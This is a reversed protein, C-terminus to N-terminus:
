TCVKNIVAATHRSELGMMADVIILIGASKSEGNYLLYLALSYIFIFRPYNKWLVRHGVLVVLIYKITFIILAIAMIAMVRKKHTNSVNERLLSTGIASRLLVCGMHSFENHKYVLSPDAVSTPLGEM